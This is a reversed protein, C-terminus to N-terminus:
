CCHHEFLCKLCWSVWGSMGKVSKRICPIRAWLLEDIPRHRFATTARLIRGHSKCNRKMENLKWSWAPRSPSDIAPLNQTPVKPYRSDLFSRWTLHLHPKVWLHNFIADEELQQHQQQQQHHHHHHHHLAVLRIQRTSDLIGMWWWLRAERPGFRETGNKGRRLNKIRYKKLHKPAECAQFCLVNNQKKKKALFGPVVGNKATPQGPAGLLHVEVHLHSKASTFDIENNHAMSWHLSHWKQRGKREM